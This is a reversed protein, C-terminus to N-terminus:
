HVNFYLIQLSYYSCSQQITVAYCFRGEATFGVDLVVTRSLLVTARISLIKETTNRATSNIRAWVVTKTHGISGSTRERTGPLHGRQPM